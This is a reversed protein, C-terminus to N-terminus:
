IVGFHRLAKEIGDELAPATIYDAAEKASTQGNGMAVGIGAWRLMSVDNDGDGVAMVEERAIGYYSAVAALGAAKGGGKPIVDFCLPTASTPEVGTLPTLFSANEKPHYVLFQYVPHEQLRAPDYLLPPAINERAFHELMIPDEIAMFSGEEEILLCPFPHEKLIEILQLIQNKEIAMKHLVKGTKDFCYQGNLALYGDFPFIEELFRVMPQTRGTAVFLKVGQKQAAALAELASQPVKRTEPPLLTGDIDFFVAKIEM